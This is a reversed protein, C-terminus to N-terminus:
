AKHEDERLIEEGFWAPPTVVLAHVIRGFGGLGRRFGACSFCVAKGPVDAAKGYHQHNVNEASTWNCPGDIVVVQWVCNLDNIERKHGQHFDAPDAIEEEEVGHANPAAKGVSVCGDLGERHGSWGLLRGRVSVSRVAEQPVRIPKEKQQQDVSKADTRHSPQFPVTQGTPKVVREIFGQCDKTSMGCECILEETPVDPTDPTKGVVGGSGIGCDCFGAKNAKDRM